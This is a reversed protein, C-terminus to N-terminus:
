INSLSLSVALPARFKVCVCGVWCFLLFFFALYPTTVSQPVTENRKQGDQDAPSKYIWGERERKGEIYIYIIHSFSFRRCTGSWVTLENILSENVGCRASSHNKRREGREAMALLRVRVSHSLMCNDLSVNM